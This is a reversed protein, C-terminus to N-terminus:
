TQRFYCYRPHRRSKWLGLFSRRISWFGSSSWRGRVSRGSTARARLSRQPLKSALSDLLLLLLSNSYRTLTHLFFFFHCTDFHCTQHLSMYRDVVVKFQSPSSHQLVQEAKKSWKVSWPRLRMRTCSVLLRGIATHAASLTPCMWRARDYWHM